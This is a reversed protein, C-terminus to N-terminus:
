IGGEVGISPVTIPGIFRAACTPAATSAGPLSLGTGCAYGTTERSLTANLAEFVVALWGRQGLQWRKEARLDLRYFAPTRPPPVGVVQEPFAPVAASEPIGSYTVFRLGARWGAGLGAMIAATLVHPRDYSSLGDKGDFTRESRSMTYSAMGAVRRTLKRRLGLELGYSSGRSKEVLSSSREIDILEIQATGLGDNLNYFANHFVTASATFDSPLDAEVGGSTQVSRQLGGRLFGLTIGPLTIPTSPPQSAV